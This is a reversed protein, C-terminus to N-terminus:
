SNKGKAKNRHHYRKFDNIYSKKGISGKVPEKKRAEFVKGARNKIKETAPNNSKFNKDPTKKIRKINHKLVRDAVKKIIKPGAARAVGTAILNWVM